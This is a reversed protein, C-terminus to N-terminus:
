RKFASYIEILINLKYGFNLLHGIDYRASIKRWSPAVIAEDSGVGGDNAFDSHAVIAAYPEISDDTAVDIGDLDAVFDIDLVVCDYMAGIIFGFGDDAVVNGDAVAGDNVTAGDLVIYQDAHAGDDHVIAM